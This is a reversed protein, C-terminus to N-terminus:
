DHLWYHPKTRYDALGLSLGCWHMPTSEPDVCRLNISFMTLFPTSCCPNGLATRALVLLLLM